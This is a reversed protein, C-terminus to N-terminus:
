EIAFEATAGATCDWHGDSYKICNEGSVPKYSSSETHKIGFRFEYEGNNKPYCNFVIEQDKKIPKGANCDTIFETEGAEKDTYKEISAKYIFADIKEPVKTFTIILKGDRATLKYDFREDTISNTKHTCGFLFTTILLMGFLVIATKNM